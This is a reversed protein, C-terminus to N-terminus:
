RKNCQYNRVAEAYAKSLAESVAQRYEDCVNGQAWASTLDAFLSDLKHIINEQKIQEM